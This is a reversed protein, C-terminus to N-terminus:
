AFTADNKRLPRYSVIMSSQGGPSNPKEEPTRLIGRASVNEFMLRSRLLNDVNNDLDRGSVLFSSNVTFAM